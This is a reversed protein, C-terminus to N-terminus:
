QSAETALILGAEVQGRAEIALTRAKALPTAPYTGLSLRARKGDKPSTFM